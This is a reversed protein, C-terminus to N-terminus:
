HPTRTYRQAIDDVRRRQEDIDRTFALAVQVPRPGLRWREEAGVIREVWGEERMVELDRLATSASVELARAVESLRLGQTTHGALLLQIRLVRRASQRQEKSESM